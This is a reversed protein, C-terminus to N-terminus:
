SKEIQKIASPLEALHKIKQDFHDAEGFGYEAYIFPIGALQAAKQDGVTDGVYVPSHLQNREMVLTINEGKSLGTRGPNEFDKFYKGLQHYAYFAEIYGEQCNSVIYLAYSSSLEALVEELQPYLRGGELLLQENEKREVEGLLQMREQEDLQPFLKEGIEKAQLGMTSGLQEVTIPQELTPHASIAQNYTKLVTESSDWLTGDLDFM